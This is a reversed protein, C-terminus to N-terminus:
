KVCRLYILFESPCQGNGLYKIINCRTCIPAWTGFDMIMGDIFTNLHFRSFPSEGGSSCFTFRASLMKWQSRSTINTNSLMRGSCVLANSSLPAPLLHTQYKGNVIIQAHHREMFVESWHRILGAEFVILIYQNIVTFLPYGQLFVSLLKSDEFIRDNSPMDSSLVWKWLALHWRDHLLVKGSTAYRRNAMNM